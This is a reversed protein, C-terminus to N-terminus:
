LSRAQLGRRSESANKAAIRWRGVILIALGGLLLTASAPEPVAPANVTGSGSVTFNTTGLFGNGSVSGTAGAFEGTGGTFTLTQPFPGTQSPSTDIATDDEFIKGILTDGDAFTLTFNGNLLNTTLDLV